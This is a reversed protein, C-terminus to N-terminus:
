TRYISICRQRFLAEWGRESNKGYFLQKEPHSTVVSGDELDLSTITNIRLRETAAAHFFKSSEDGLKTWRV